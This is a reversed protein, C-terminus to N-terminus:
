PNADARAPRVRPPKAAVAITVIRAASQDLSANSTDVVHDALMYLPRRTRLLTKLEAMANARNRMPRVDGQRVVRDWHDQPRAKLWVTMTKQRLLEYTERQTVISGGTALVAVPHAELFARLVERELRHFWAEGHMEFITALPMGAEAAVLADLEFFPVGVRRAIEAGLTSKGAGRLGLLAIVKRLGTAPPRTSLLDSASTGLAEAVDQLRAVSINGSGAELQALFRESVDARKALARITLGLDTRRARVAAGLTSLLLTRKDLRAAGRDSGHAAQQGRATYNTDV